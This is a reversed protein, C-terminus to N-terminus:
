NQSLFIQNDNKGAVMEVSLLLTKYGAAYINVTVPNRMPEISFEKVNKFVFCGSDNSKVEGIYKYMGTSYTVPYSLMVSANSVPKHNAKDYICGSFEIDGIFHPTPILACSQVLM